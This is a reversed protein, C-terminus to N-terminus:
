EEDWNFDDDTEEKPATEERLMEKRARDKALIDERKGFYTSWFDDQSGKEQFTKLTELIHLNSLALLAEKEAIEAETLKHDVLVDYQKVDAELSQLEATVRPNFSGTSVYASYKLSPTSANPSTIPAPKALNEAAEVLPAMAPVVSSGWWSVLSNKVDSLTDLAKTEFVELDGDITDLLSNTQKSAADLLEERSEWGKQLSQINQKALGLLKDSNM